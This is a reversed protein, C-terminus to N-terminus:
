RRGRTVRHAYFQQCRRRPVKDERVPDVLHRHHEVVFLDAPYQLTFGYRENRYEAWDGAPAPLLSGLIRVRGKGM